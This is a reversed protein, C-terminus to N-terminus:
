FWHRENYCVVIYKGPEHSYCVRLINDLVERRVSDCAKKFYICPQHVGENCERKIELIQRICIIQVTTSRNRRFGCQHDCLLEEAYPTLISLLINSFSRVYSSFQYAETTIVIQKIVRRISLYL